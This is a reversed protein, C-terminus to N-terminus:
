RWCSGCGLARSAAATACTGAARRRASPSRRPRRGSSSRPARTGASTSRTCAITTRSSSSRPPWRRRAAPGIGADLEGLLEDWAELWGEHVIVPSLNVHVEYGAAVFDEIAAIRHEVPHTRVDVLRSVDRPMLSFRVRTGGRPDYELLRPNVAKTAFSAKAGDTRAFLDVYDRVTGAVWADISCDSNEGIDYVWDVPDCQNPAPKRGQRAIHRETARMIQEANAFVTIPNAFGKRRPVYCYACSMACGNAQSPAIFDSSRGNPRIRPAKLTGLVLATRKIRNWDAVNGENGHLGPIQWHSPVEIREADPFRALVEQGRPLAAAAPEVYITDVQLLREIPTVPATAAPM